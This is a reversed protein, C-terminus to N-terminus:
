ENTDYGAPWVMSRSAFRFTEETTVDKLTYISSGDGLKIKEISLDPYYQLYATTESDGYTAEYDIISMAIFLLDYIGSNIKLDFGNFNLSEDGKNLSLKMKIAVNIGDPVIITESEVKGSSVQYGEDEYSDIMSDSCVKIKPAILKQLEEEYHNKIMPQQIACLEYYGSSYCLYKVKEGEYLIFGEPNVYGGRKSILEINEDLSKQICDRLLKEPSMATTSPLIVDGLRTFMLLLIIGLVIVASLIVWIAIQGRKKDIIM